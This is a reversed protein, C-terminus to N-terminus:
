ACVGTILAAKDHLKGSGRYDLALFEPRPSMKAEIGPRNQTQAPMPSLPHEETSVDAQERLVIKKLKGGGDAKKTKDSRGRSAKKEKKAMNM